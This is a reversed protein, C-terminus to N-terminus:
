VGYSTQATAYHTTIMPLAKDIHAFRHNGGAFMKVNFVDELLSFTTGASIIEDKQDLLVLGCGTTAINPYGGIVSETLCKDDGNFDTFMGQWKALSINPTVAPNLSVFPVGTEAGVHAAMYGGMSTGVIIDIHELAVVSCIKEFVHTFGKCYDVDVGYVTGLTELAVIKEHTPNFQSGFGHVYLIKM